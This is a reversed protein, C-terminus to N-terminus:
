PPQRERSPFRSRATGTSAIKKRTFPAEKQWKRKGSFPGLARRVAFSPGKEGTEGALFFEVRQLRRRQHVLSSGWKLDNTTVQVFDLSQVEGTMLSVLGPHPMCLHLGLLYRGAEELEGDNFGKQLIVRLVPLHIRKLEFLPWLIEYIKCTQDLFDEFSIFEGQQVTMAESNFTVVMGLQDNKLSGAKPTTETPIWGEGLTDEIRVLAEGCKDLYRYGQIFRVSAQIEHVKFPSNVPM